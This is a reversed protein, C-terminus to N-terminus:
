RRIPVDPVDAIDPVVRYLTLDIPVPRDGMDGMLNGDYFRHLFRTTSVEELNASRHMEDCAAAISEDPDKRALCFLGEYYYLCPPPAELLARAEPRLPDDGGPAAGVSVPVFRRREVRGDLVAGARDFRVDQDAVGAGTYELVTCSDPLQAAVERVFQYERQDNFAVDGIFDRHLFPTALVYALGAWYLLRRRAHLRALGLAALLAFPVVLHLHYRAQMAISRPIVYAHALYFLLLWGVLFAGAERAPRPAARATWAGVVALLTLVPPTIWPHLLTNTLPNLFSRLGNAVTAWQLGDDINGSYLPQVELVFTAVGVALLIASVFLRRGLRANRRSLYLATWLLLPLFIQNLPRTVFMLAAVFPLAATAAARFGRSDDKLAVHVLAFSFSSLALSPIFAVETQSFRLHVPLVTVIVAALFAVRESDLLKKGHLFVAAPTGIAFLLDVTTVLDFYYVETGLKGVAAALAPGNWILGLLTTSRSFPWAGLMTAPSLALRLLAALATLGVVGYLVPASGKRLERGLLVLFFALGVLCLVVGDVVWGNTLMREISRANTPLPPRAQRRFFGGTDNARIAEYLLDVAARAPDSSAERYVAFSATEGDTDDAHDPHELRLTATEDPDPPDASDAPDAPDAPSPGDAGGVTLEFEIYTAEIRVNMLRYGGDVEAALSYPRVLALVDQERGPEIIPVETLQAAAREATFGWLGALSAWLALAM